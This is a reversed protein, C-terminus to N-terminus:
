QALKGIVLAANRLIDENMHQYIDVTTGSNSHGLYHTILKTEFGNQLGLTAFTHRATHLKFHPLNVERLLKAWEKSARRPEMPNGVSNTFVFGRSDWSVAMLRSSSQERRWEKLLNLSVEDLYIIRSKADSKLKKLVLGKNKQRQLQQHLRLEGTAMDIDSWLLGLIEGQRFGTNFHLAWMLRWILPKSKGGQIVRSKEEATLPLVQSNKRKPTDLHDLPNFAIKKRKIARKLAANLIINIHAMSNQSLGSKGNNQQIRLYAEEILDSTLDTLRIKGLEPILYREIDLKYRELTRPEVKRAKDDLFSQLMEQVTGAMSPMAELTRSEKKNLAVRLKKAIEKSTKASLNRRRGDLDFYQARYRNETEAYWWTGDGNIRRKAM